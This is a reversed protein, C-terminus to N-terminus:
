AVPGRDDRRHGQPRRVQPGYSPDLGIIRTYQWANAELQDKLYSFFREDHTTILVQHDRLVTALLAAIARRHDADYSTVVDDLAVIPAAGNFQVIAALRLALAISHIQSDSLYGGPQVAPRNEAFDVLLHLRQQNTDDEGPLDLRISKAAMGQIAKYIENM